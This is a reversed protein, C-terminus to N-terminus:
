LALKLAEDREIKYKEYIEVMFVIIDTICWALISVFM